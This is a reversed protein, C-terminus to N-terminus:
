DTETHKEGRFVSYKQYAVCQPQADTKATCLFWLFVIDKVDFFMFLSYAVTQPEAGIGKQQRFPQKQQKWHFRRLVMPPVRHCLM